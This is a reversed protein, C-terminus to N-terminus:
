ILDIFPSKRMLSIVGNGILNSVGFKSMFATILPMVGGEIESFIGPNDSIVAGRLWILLATAAVGIRNNFIMRFTNSENTFTGGSLSM